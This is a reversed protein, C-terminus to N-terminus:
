GPLTSYVTSSMMFWHPLATKLLRARSKAIPTAMPIAFFSFSTAARDPAIAYRTIFVAMLAIILAAPPTSAIAALEVVVMSPM